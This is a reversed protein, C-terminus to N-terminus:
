ELDLLNHERYFNTGSNLIKELKETIKSIYDKSNQSLDKLNFIDQLATEKNSATLSIATSVM